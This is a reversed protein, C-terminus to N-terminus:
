NGRATTPAPSPALNEMVWIEGKADPSGGGGSFFLRRGDPTVSISGLPLVTDELKLVEQPEGGDVPVRWIRRPGLPSSNAIRGQPDPSSTAIYLYKGDPSWAPRTGGDSNREVQEDPTGKFVTRGPGGDTPVIRVEFVRGYKLRETANDVGGLALYKGDPSVITSTAGIRREGSETVVVRERGSRLDQAVLKSFGDATFYLTSADRNATLYRQPTPQSSGVPSAARLSLEGSRPDYGYLGYVGRREGELLLSEGDAAWREIRAIYDLGTAIEREAGTVTSRIVLMTPNLITYAIRAGDPSIASTWVDGQRNPSAVRPAGRARGTTPDIEVEFLQRPTSAISTQYLIRDNVLQIPQSDALDGRVRQPPGSAAGGSMPLRWVSSLGDRSWEWYLVADGASSWGLVRKQLGSSTLRVERSGDVAIAFVEQESPADPLNVGYVIWRGDPSFEGHEPIQWDLSKLIRTSGDATSVLLLQQRFDKGYGIVLLNRGDPSWDQIRVARQPTENVRVLTRLGSGDSGTVVIEGGTGLGARTTAIQKGDKSYRGGDIGGPNTELSTIRGSLLDFTALDANVGTGQGPIGVLLKTGDPSVSQGIATRGLAPHGYLPGSFLRRSTVNAFRPDATTASAPTSPSSRPAPTCAALSAVVACALTLRNM